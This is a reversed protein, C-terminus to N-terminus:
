VSRLNWHEAFGPTTHIVGDRDILLGELDMSELLALAKERGLVICATAVADATMSDGCIVTAGALDSVASYGTVPDLIHHYRVGDKEFWREYIGSTVVTEDFVTVVCKASGEEGQPDRVAVNFGSGNPKKGVTYINGGFSLVAGNCHGRCLAAAQDAIYGKAIGGLDIMMGAALTVTCDEGLIIRSDDVLPLAAALEDESPMRRTGGTFDWLASVPAITVSFAGGTLASIEKARKLIAWTEPDVQVAEGGARNIRDVDSGSVTKSLLGEYRACAAHLKEMLGEEGGYLTFTVVTDFYFGVGSTRQATQEARSCGALLLCCVAALAAAQRIRKM